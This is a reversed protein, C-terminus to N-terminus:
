LQGGSIPISQGTVAGSGPGCLWLAAEAVEEPTILRGFPNSEAFVAEAEERAMGSRSMVKEVNAQVIPTAVYAPCLANVTVGAKLVEESASKVLGLVAHKSAAYASGYRFGKLGAVSSIAIIRGWGREAMGDIVARMTLFVGDVNAAQVMRWLELSMRGLPATEAIGANAILIDVPGAAADAAAFGAVVAAEETVDMVQWRMNARGEVTDALPGERRGTITVTAGSAALAVAIAAGIGTGGGTVLAHRGALDPM